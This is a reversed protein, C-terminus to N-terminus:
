YYRLWLLIFSKSLFVAFQPLHYLNAYTITPTQKAEDFFHHLNVKRM